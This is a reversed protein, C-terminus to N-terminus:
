LSLGHYLSPKLEVEESLSRELTMERDLTLRHEQVLRPHMALERVDRVPVYTPEGQANVAFLLGGTTGGVRRSGCFRGLAQIYLRVDHLQGDTMGPGALADATERVFKAL